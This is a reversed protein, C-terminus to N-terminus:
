EKDFESFSVVIVKKFGKAEKIERAVDNLVETTLNEGDDLKFLSNGFVPDDDKSISVYSVLFKRM